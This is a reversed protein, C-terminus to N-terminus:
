KSSSYGITSLLVIHHEIQWIWSRISSGFRDVEIKSVQLVGSVSEIAVDEIQLIATGTWVVGAYPDALCSELHCTSDQSVLRVVASFFALRRVLISGLGGFGKVRGIM